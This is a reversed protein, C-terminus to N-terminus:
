ENIKLSLLTKADDFQSNATFVFPTSTQTTNGFNFDLNTNPDFSYGLNKNFILGKSNYKLLYKNFAEVKDLLELKIGIKEM